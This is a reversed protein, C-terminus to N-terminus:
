SRRAATRAALAEIAQMVAEPALHHLMHGMGAVLRLEAEPVEEALRGSHGAASVVRDESGAVIAVPVSLEGYRRSLSAAAPVLEAAEAGIARLQSPRAAMWVPFRRFHEPVPKPAFLIRRVLPWQARFLFPSVTHRLVDGLVPVAATSAVPVDLRVSPYFYGSELVLGRVTDPRELGMAVAVLAGWSHGLVIPREVGLRELARHILRAQNRPGWVGGRRPRESWGYGPRDFAIVRFRQAAMDLFPGLLFDTSTVINGHLLVLPDGEGREVYHLRVGDVEVFAGAPPNEREAQRSRTRVFSAAAVGALAAAAIWGARGPASRRTV